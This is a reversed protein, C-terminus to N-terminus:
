QNTVNFSSICTIGTLFVTIQIQQIRLTLYGWISDNWSAAPITTLAGAVTGVGGTYANTGAAAVIGTVIYQALWEDLAKKHQLMNFAFAEAMEITRERYARKPM